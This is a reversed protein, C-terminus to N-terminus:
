ISVQECLFGTEGDKVTEVPGGDNVAVVPAGSLMAECPVIGFHEGSPTYLLALFILIFSWLTISHFFFSLYYYIFLIIGKCNNLLYNREQNSISMRFIVQVDNIDKLISNDNIHDNFLVIYKLKLNTTIKILENLYEVNENVRKDYGGAIILITNNQYSTNCLQLYKYYSYLALSIKKKREYRNLSIFYNKNNIYQLYLPLNSSIINM